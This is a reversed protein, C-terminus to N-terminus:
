GYGGGGGGVLSPFNLTRNWCLFGCEVIKLRITDNNTGCLSSTIVRHSCEQSRLQFALLSLLDDSDSIEM